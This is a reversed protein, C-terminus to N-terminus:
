SLQQGNRVLLQQRAGVWLRGKTDVGLSTIADDGGFAPTNFRDLITFRAGDYRALGFWTGFWLYGDPTQAIASVRSQPLGSESSFRQATFRQQVPESGPLGAPWAMLAVLVPLLWALRHRVPSGTPHNM